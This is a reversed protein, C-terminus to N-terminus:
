WTQAGVPTLAPTEGIYKSEWQATETSEECDRWGPHFVIAKVIGPVTAPSASSPSWTLSPLPHVPLSTISSM